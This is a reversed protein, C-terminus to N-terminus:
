LDQTLGPVPKQLLAELRGKVTETIMKDINSQVERIAVDAINYFEAPVPPM